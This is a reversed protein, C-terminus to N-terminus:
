AVDNAVKTKLKARRRAAYEAFLPKAREINKERYAAIATRLLQFDSLDTNSMGVESCRYSSPQAFPRRIDLPEKLVDGFMFRGSPVPGASRKM